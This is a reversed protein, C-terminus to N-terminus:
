GFIVTTYYKDNYEIVGVGIKTVGSSVAKEAIAPAVASNYLSNGGYETVFTYAGAVTDEGYVNPLALAMSNMEANTKLEGSVEVPVLGGKYRDENIQDVIAQALTQNREPSVNPIEFRSTTGPQASESWIDGETPVPPGIGVIQTVPNGNEDLNTHGWRDTVIVSSTQQVYKTTPPATTPETVPVTYTVLETVPEGNEGTVPVGSPDTVQVASSEVVFGQTTSAATTTQTTTSKKPYTHFSSYKPRTYSVPMTYTFGNGDADTGTVVIMSTEVIMEQETTKEEGNFVGTKVLIVVLVLVLALAAVVGTLINKTSM